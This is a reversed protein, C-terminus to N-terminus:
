GECAYRDVIGGQELAPLDLWQGQGLVVDSQGDDNDDYFVPAPFM